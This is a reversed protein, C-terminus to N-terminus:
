LTPASKLTSLSRVVNAKGSHLLISLIHPRGSETELEPGTPLQIYVHDESFQARLLFM